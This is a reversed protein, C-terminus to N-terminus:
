TEDSDTQTQIMIVAYILHTISGMGHYGIKRLNVKEKSDVRINKVNERTKENKKTQKPLFSVKEIM